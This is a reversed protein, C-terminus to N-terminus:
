VYNFEKIAKQSKKIETNIKDLVNETVFKKGMYIANKIARANSKGHGVIVLGNIGLLLAGGYEAYDM